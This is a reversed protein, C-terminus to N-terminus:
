ASFISQWVSFACPAKKPGHIARLYPLVAQEPCLESESPARFAASAAGCGAFATFQLLSSCIWFKTTLHEGQSQRTVLLM